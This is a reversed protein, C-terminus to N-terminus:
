LESFYFGCNFADEHIEVDNGIIIETIPNESFAGNNIRRVSNPIAIKELNNTWFAYEDIIELQEPLVVDKLQGVAFLNKNIEKINKGIVCHEISNAFFAGGKITVVSDSVVLNVVDCNVFAERGIEKLTENFVIEKIRCGYFASDDIIELYRPLKLTKIEFEWFAAKGIITVPKNNITDPIELFVMPLDTIQFDGHKIEITNENEFCWFIGYKTYYQIEGEPNSFSKIDYDYQGLNKVVQIEKTEKCSSMLLILVLSVILEKM